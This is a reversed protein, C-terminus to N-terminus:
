KISLIIESKPSSHSILPTPNSKISKSTGLIHGDLKSLKELGLASEILEWLMKLKNGLINRIAVCWVTNWLWTAWLQVSKYDKQLPGFPLVEM